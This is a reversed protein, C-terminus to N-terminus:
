WLQGQDDDDVEDKLTPHKQAYETCTWGSDSDMYGHTEKAGADYLACDKAWKCRRGACPEATTTGM